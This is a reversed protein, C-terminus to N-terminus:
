FEASLGVSLSTGLNYSNNIITGGGYEQSELFEEGLLNGAKFSFGMERGALEFSRRYVFDLMVGPEAIIDPQGESGRASSRESAYTLLLTAQNSTDALGLQFNAIHESQGQLRAGSVIFSSADAVQGNPRIITDGASVKLESSSYTYNAQVLFSGDAWFEFPSDFIKKVELEAGYIEAKPANIYSQQVTDGQQLAISEVPKSIDKFFAGITVFQQDAFFFEYRADVNTFRTDRLYPNGFFIRDSDPDLYPQPALERFQPRGLTQSAGIRLQMDEAFNWTVTAAPLLYSQKISTGAPPTNSSMFVNRPMVSEIGREGRLGISTRVYPIPELDAKLYAGTVEIQADYAAAGNTGSVETIQFRDPAINFDSFMFDVRSQAVIPDVNTGVGNPLTGGTGVWNFVFERSSSTRSNDSHAVGGSLEIDRVGSMPISYKVDIGASAVEDFLDAFKTSNRVGTSGDYVYRQIDPFWKNTLTWEYPSERSTQAYAGRWSIDLQGFDFDGSLQSSFLEREYWATRETLTEIGRLEDNGFRRNAEKTARHIWLNTWKVEHNGFQAGTVFMGNWGVNNQTTTYNYNGLRPELRGADILGAQQVGDKTEWENVYGVVATAGLRLDGIDVIGGTSLGVNGNGPIDNNKQVLRLQANELSHGIRQLEQGSTLQPYLNIGNAIQVGAQFAERFQEPVKRTGDDFGLVDTGGGDYTYGTALTTEFNMGAGVSAKLFNDKPLGVTSLDIVGGGFEGPYEASYSKQVMVGSLVETPFLDLPVVRQLPEPSPLTSGNLLASSYREGLGRVYVFRGDAISLGTVRTLAEAANGDGQRALDVDTLFAAVESTEQLPEPIYEGLVVITETPPSIAQPAPADPTDAQQALAAPAILASSAVLLFGLSRYYSKM